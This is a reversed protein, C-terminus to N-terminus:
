PKACNLQWHIGYRDTVIGFISNWFTTHLPYNVQGGDALAEFIRAQEQEDSLNVSLTINDGITVAGNPQGDSAQLWLGESKIESHLINQRYPEPVDMGAEAYTQLATIQGNFADRYFTMAELCKGDFNIYPNLTKV